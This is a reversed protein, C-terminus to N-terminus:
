AKCTSYCDDHCAITCTTNCGGTCTTGCEGLCTTRCEGLCTEECSNDCGSSCSSSCGGSCGSGCKGSCTKECTGTCGVCENACTTSCLGACGSKCDTGNGYEPYIKHAEIKIDMVELSLVKNGVAVDESKIGTDNIANIPEIIKSTHELKVPGGTMPIEIYDYEKSAYIEDLRDEYCRRQM